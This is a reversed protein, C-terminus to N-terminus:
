MKPTALFAHFAVKQNPSLVNEIQQDYKRNIEQIQSTANGAIVGSVKDLEQLRADNIKKVLIIAGENLELSSATKRTQEMSRNDAAIAPTILNACFAFTFTYIIKKM